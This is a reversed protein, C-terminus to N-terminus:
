KIVLEAFVRYVKRDVTTYCAEGWSLDISNYTTGDDEQIPSIKMQVIEEGNVMEIFVDGINLEGFEVMQSKEKKIIM